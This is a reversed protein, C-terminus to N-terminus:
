IGASAGRPHPEVIVEIAYPRAEWHLPTVDLQERSFTELTDM